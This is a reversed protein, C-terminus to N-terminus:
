LFQLVFHLTAGQRHHYCPVEVKNAGRLILAGVVHVDWTHPHKVVANSIESSSLDPPHSSPERPCVVSSIGDPADEVSYQNRYFPLDGEREVGEAGESPYARVM